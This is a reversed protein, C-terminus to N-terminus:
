EGQTTGSAAEDNQELTEGPIVVEVREEGNSGSQAKIRQEAFLYDITDGTVIAGNQEIRAERTLYVREEARFYEITRAAARVPEQDIEPQQQMRAPTGRAVIRDPQDQRHHLTIKDAEIQLSGQQMRVNGTYVTIGKRDDRLAQDASIRIPQQSDDPLAGVAAALALMLAGFATRSIRPLFRHTEPVRRTM